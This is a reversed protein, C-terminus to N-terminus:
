HVVVTWERVAHSVVCGGPIYPDNDVLKKVAEQSRLVFLAEDPGQGVEGVAGGMLLEGSARLAEANALHEARFPTRNELIDPVYEYKLLYMTEPAKGSLFRASPTGLRSSSSGLRSSSSSLRSALTTTLVRTTIM